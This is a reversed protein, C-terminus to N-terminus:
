LRTIPSSWTGFANCYRKLIKLPALCYVSILLIDAKKRIIQLDKSILCEKFVESFSLEQRSIIASKEFVTSFYFFILCRKSIRNIHIHQISFYFSLNVKYPSSSAFSLFKLLMVDNKGGIFVCTIYKWDWTNWKRTM